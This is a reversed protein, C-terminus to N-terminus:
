LSPNMPDHPDMKPAKPDAPPGSATGRKSGPLSPVRPHSPASAEYRPPAADVSRVASLEARLLTREAKLASLQREAEVLQAAKAGLVAEYGALVRHQEPRLKGFYVGLCGVVVAAGLLVSTVTMARQRRQESTRALADMRRQHELELVAQDVQVRKDVEARVRELEATRLVELRIEEERKRLGEAVKRRAEEVEAQVEAERIRRVNEE